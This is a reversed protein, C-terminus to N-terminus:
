EYDACAQGATAKLDRRPSGPRRYGCDGQAQKHVYVGRLSRHTAKPGAWHACSGCRHDLHPSNIELHDLQFRNLENSVSGRQAPRKSKSGKKSQEPLSKIATALVVGIIMFLGSDFVSTLLIALGLVGSIWIFKSMEM